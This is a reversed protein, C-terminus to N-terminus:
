RLKSANISAAVSILLPTFDTASKSASFVSAVIALVMPPVAM